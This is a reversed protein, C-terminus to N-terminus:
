PEPDPTEAEPTGTRTPNPHLPCPTAPAHLYRMPYTLEPCPTPRDGNAIDAGSMAYRPTPLYRHCFGVAARGGRGRAGLLLM